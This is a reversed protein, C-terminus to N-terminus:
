VFAKRIRGWDEIADEQGPVIQVTFQSYGADRLDAIRQKLLALMTDVTDRAGVVIRDDALPGSEVPDGNADRPVSKALEWATVRGDVTSEIVWM